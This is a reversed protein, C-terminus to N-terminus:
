RPRESIGPKPDLERHVVKGPGPNEGRYPCAKRMIAHSGRDKVHVQKYWGCQMIRAIGAADNRDNKNIQM